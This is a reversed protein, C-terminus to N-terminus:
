DSINYSMILHLELHDVFAERHELVVVNKARSNSAHISVKREAHLLIHSSVLAHATTVLVYTSEIVRVLWLNTSINYYQYSTWYM